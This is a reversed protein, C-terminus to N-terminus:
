SLARIATRWGVLFLALVLAAVVIFSPATGQGSIVRLVMGAVLTCLWIILGAPRVRLGNFPQNVRNRLYLAYVALWGVALGTLFPWATRVLGALIAEDHSRRGIVCFLVVLLADVVIPGLWKM